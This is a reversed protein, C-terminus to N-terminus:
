NCSNTGDLPICITRPITNNILGFCTEQFWAVVHKGGLLNNEIIRTLDIGDVEVRFDGDEIRCEGWVLNASGLQFDGCYAFRWLYHCIQDALFEPNFGVMLNLGRFHMDVEIEPLTYMRFNDQEGDWNPENLFFNFASTLIPNIVKIDLNPNCGQGDGHLSVQLGESGYYRTNPVNARRRDGGDVYAVPGDDAYVGVVRNRCKCTHRVAHDIHGGGIPFPADQYGGCMEECPTLIDVEPTKKTITEDKPHNEGLFSIPQIRVEAFAYDYTPPPNVVLRLMAQVEELDVKLNDELNWMLDILCDGKGFDYPFSWIGEGNFSYNKLFKPLSPIKPVVEELVTNIITTVNFANKLVAQVLPSMDTLDGDSGKPVEKWQLSFTFPLKGDLAAPPSLIGVVSFKQQALLSSVLSLISNIVPNDGSEFTTLKTLNINKLQIGVCASGRGLVEETCGIDDNQKFNTLYAHVTGSLVLPFLYLPKDGRKGKVVYSAPASSDKCRVTLDSIRIVDHEPTFSDYTVEGAFVEFICSADPAKEVTGTGVHLFLPVQTLATLIELFETSYFIMELTEQPVAGLVMNVQRTLNPSFSLNKWHPQIVPRSSSPKTTCRRRCGLGKCSPSAGSLEHEMGMDAEDSSLASSNQKNLRVQVLGSQECEQAGACILGLLGLIFYRLM